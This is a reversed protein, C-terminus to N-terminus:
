RRHLVDAWDPHQKFKKYAYPCAPIVKKKAARFDTVARAVLAEAVRQGRHPVPTETHDITVLGEPREFFTLEAESGDDFRYIYRGKEGNAELKISRPDIKM